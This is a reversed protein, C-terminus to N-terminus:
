VYIIMFLRGVIMTFHMISVFQPRYYAPGLTNDIAPPSRKIISDDDNIHYGHAQGCSPISPVDVSRTVTPARLAKKL